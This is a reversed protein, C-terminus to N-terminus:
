WRFLNVYYRVLSKLSSVTLRRGVLKRLLYLGWGVGLVRLLFLAPKQWPSGEWDLFFAVILGSLYLKM